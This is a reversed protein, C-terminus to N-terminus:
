ASLINFQQLLPVFNKATVSQDIQYVISSPYLPKSAIINNINNTNLRATYESIYLKPDVAVMGENFLQTDVAVAIDRVEKLVPSNGSRDVTFRDNMVGSTSLRNYIRTLSLYFIRFDQYDLMFDRAIQTVSDELLASVIRSQYVVSTNLNARIPSWGLQLITAANDETIYNSTSPVPLTSLKEGQRGYFPQKMGVMHTAMASGVMGASVVTNDSPFYFNSSNQFATNDLDDALTGTVKTIASFVGWNDGYVPRGTNIRTELFTKLEGFYGGSVDKDGKAYEYPCVFADVPTEQLSIQSLLNKPTVDTNQWPNTTATSAENLIGITVNIPELDYRDLSALYGEYEMGLTILMAGIEDTNTLDLTSSSAFKYDIGLTTCIAVASSKSTIQGVVLPTYKDGASVTTNGTKIHGALFVNRSVGQFPSPQIFGKVKIYPNLQQSTQIAM